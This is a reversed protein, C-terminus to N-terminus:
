KEVPWDNPIPSSKILKSYVSKITNMRGADRMFEIENRISKAKREAECISEPSSLLLFYQDVEEIM